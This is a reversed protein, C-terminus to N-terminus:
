FHRADGTLASGQQIGSQSFFAREAEQPSSQKALTLVAVADQSPSLASVAQKQNNIKWGEPFRLQIGLEPQVFRSGIGYGERPNDRVVPNHPRRPYPARNVTRSDLDGQGGSVKGSIRQFRGEPAPHTSLRTPIRGAGQQESVRRLTDFVKPMERPDYGQAVL